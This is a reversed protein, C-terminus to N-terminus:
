RQGGPLRCQSGTQAALGVPCRDLEHRGTDRVGQTLGGKGMVDDKRGFHKECLCKRSLDIRAAVRHEPHPEDTEVLEPMNQEQLDVM